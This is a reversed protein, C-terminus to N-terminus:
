LVSAQLMQLTSSSRLSLVSFGWCLKPALFWSFCCQPSASAGAVARPRSGASGSPFCMEGPQSLLQGETNLDKRVGMGGRGDALRATGQALDPALLVKGLESTRSRKRM